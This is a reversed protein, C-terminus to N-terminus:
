MNALTSSGRRVTQGCRRQPYGSVVSCINVVTMWSAAWCTCSKIEVFDGQNQNYYRSPVQLVCATQHFREIYFTNKMKESLGALAKIFSGGCVFDYGPEHWTKGHKVMIAIGFRCTGPTDPYQHAGMHRISRHSAPGLQPLAAPCTPITIVPPTRDFSCRRLLDQLHPAKTLGHTSCGEEFTNDWHALVRDKIRVWSPDDSLAHIEDRVTQLQEFHPIAALVEDVAYGLQQHFRKFHPDLLVERLNGFDLQGPFPEYVQALEPQAEIVAM